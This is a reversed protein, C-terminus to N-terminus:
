KVLWCRWRTINQTVERAIWDIKTPLLTLIKRRLPFALLFSSVNLTEQRKSSIDIQPDSSLSGRSSREEPTNELHLCVIEKPLWWPMDAWSPRPRIMGTAHKELYWPNPSESLHTLGTMAEPSRIKHTKGFVKSQLITGGSRTELLNDFAPDLWNKLELESLFFRRRLKGGGQTSNEQRRDISSMPQMRENTAAAISWRTLAEASGVRVTSCWVKADRMLLENTTLEHCGM